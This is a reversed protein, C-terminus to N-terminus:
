RDPHLLLASMIDSLKKKATKFKKHLLSIRYLQGGMNAAIGRLTAADKQQDIKGTDIRSAIEELRAAQSANMRNINNSISSVLVNVQNANIAYLGHEDSGGANQNVEEFDEIRVHEEQDLFSNIEEILPSIRSVVQEYTDRKICPREAGIDPLERVLSDSIFSTNGAFHTNFARQIEYEVLSLSRNIIRNEPYSLSNLIQTSKPGFVQRFFDEVMHERHVSYNRVTIETKNNRATNLWWLLRSYPNTKTGQLFTDLDETRNGRKIGQGWVSTLLEFTNRTYLIIRTDVNRSLLHQELRDDRALKHFLNESSILTDSNVQFSREFLLHGNGSTVLGKSANRFNEDKPYSLGNESLVKRNRALISQLYSTGTKGHGLHCILTARKTSMLRTFSTNDPQLVPTIRDPIKRM